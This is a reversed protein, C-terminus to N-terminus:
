GTAPQSEVYTKIAAVDRKLCKVMSGRMLWSLPAMLKAFFSRATTTMTFEVRTGGKEALGLLGSRVETLRKIDAGSNAETWLNSKNSQVKGLAM